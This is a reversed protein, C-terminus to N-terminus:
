GFCRKCAEFGHAKAESLTIQKPTKMNSCGSRSHYKQDAKGNNPIWVMQETKESTAAAVAKAEWSVTAKYGRADDENVCDNYTCLYIASGSVAKATKNSVSFTLATSDDDREVEVDSIKLKADDYFVVFDYATVTGSDARVTFTVTEDNRLAPVASGAKYADEKTCTVDLDKYTLGITYEAAPDEDPDQLIPLNSEYIDEYDDTPIRSVSTRIEKTTKEESAAMVAVAATIPTRIALPQRASGCGALGAVATLVFLLALASKALKSTNM